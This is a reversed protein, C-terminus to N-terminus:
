PMSSRVRPAQLWLMSNPDTHRGNFEKFNTRSNLGASIFQNQQFELAIQTMSQLISFAFSIKLRLTKIKM